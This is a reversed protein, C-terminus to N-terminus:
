MWRCTTRACCCRSRTQGDRRAGVLDYGSGFVQRCVTDRWSATLHALSRVEKEPRTSLTAQARLKM